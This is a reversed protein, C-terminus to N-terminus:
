LSFQRVLWKGDASLAWDAHLARRLEAVAPQSLAPVGGECPKCRRKELKEPESM